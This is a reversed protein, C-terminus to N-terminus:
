CQNINKLKDRKKKNVIRAINKKVNEYANSGARGIPNNTRMYVDKSGGNMSWRLWQFKTLTEIVEDKLSMAFNSTLGLKFGLDASKKLVRDINPYMLPDGVAVYSIAKVDLEKLEDLLDMLRFFDFKRTGGDYGKDTIIKKREPNQTVCFKCQFNCVETPEIRVHILKRSGNQLKNLNKFQLLKNFNYFSM